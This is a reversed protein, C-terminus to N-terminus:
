RAVHATSRMFPLFRKPVPAAKPATNFGAAIKEALKKFEHNLKSMSAADSVAQGLNVCKSATEYDNPLFQIFDFKLLNRAEQISLSEHKARYRNVIIKIKEPSYNLKQLIELCRSARRLSILELTTTIFVQSSMDMLPILSDSFRCGADVFVADFMRTLWPALKEVAAPTIKDADEIREPAALVSIGNPQAPLAGRLYAEDLQDINELMHALTQKPRFNLFFPIDDTQMAMDWLLTKRRTHRAYSVATNTSVFTNGVGGKFSFFTYIKGGTMAPASASKSFRDLIHDLEETELPTHLFDRVGKKIYNLIKQTELYSFIGAFPVRDTFKELRNMLAEAAEKELSAFDVIVLRPFSCSLAEEPDVGKPLVELMYSSPQRSFYDNLFEIHEDNDSILLIRFENERM